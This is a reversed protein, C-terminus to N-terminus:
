ILKTKYDQLNTKVPTTFIFKENKFNEAIIQMTANTKGSGTFSPLLFLGSNEMKKLYKEILSKNYETSQRQANKM